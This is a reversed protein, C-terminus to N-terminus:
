YFSHMKSIFNRRGQIRYSRCQTGGTESTNFQDRGAAFSERSLNYWKLSIYHEKEPCIDLGVSVPITSSAASGDALKFRDGSRM